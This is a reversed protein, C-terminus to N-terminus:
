SSLTCRDRYWRHPAARISGLGLTTNEHVGLWSGSILPPSRTFTCFKGCWRLFPIYHTPPPPPM